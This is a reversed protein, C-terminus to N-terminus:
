QASIKRLPRAPRLLTDRPPGAIPKNRKSTTDKKVILKNFPWYPLTDIRFGKNISDRKLEEKMMLSDKLKQQEAKFRKEDLERAVADIKQLSDNVQEYMLQLKDPHRTYYQLSKRVQVSDTDYRKYISRYMADVAGRSSDAYNVSAYGDALHIDILVKVMEDQKIIGDPVDDWSCASFFNILFFLALLRKM